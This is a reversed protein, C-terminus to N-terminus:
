HLLRGFVSKGIGQLHFQDSVSFFSSEPIPRFVRRCGRYLPSSDRAAHLPFNGRLVWAIQPWFAFTFTTQKCLAVRMATLRECPAGERPRERCHPGPKSSSANRGNGENGHSCLGNPRGASWVNTLLEM